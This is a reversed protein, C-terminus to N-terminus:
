AEFVIIGSGQLLSTNNLQQSSQAFQFQLTGANTSNDMHGAILLPANTLSTTSTSGGTTLDVVGGVNNTSAARELFCKGTAGSPTTFAYKFAGTSWTAMLIGLFRYTKSAAVPFALHNDNTLTTSNNVSQLATKSLFQVPLDGWSPNAGAGGTKLVQGATGAALAAWTSSNRYPIDGQATLLAKLVVDATFKYSVGGKRFCFDTGDYWLDGNSPSGNSYTAFFARKLIGLIGRYVDM